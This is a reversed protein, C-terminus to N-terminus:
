SVAVQTPLIVTKTCALVMIIQREHQIHSPEEVISIPLMIEKVIHKKHMRELVRAGPEGGKDREMVQGIVSRPWQDTLLQPGFSFHGWLQQLIRHCTSECGAM